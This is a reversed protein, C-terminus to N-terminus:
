ELEMAEEEEEEEMVADTPPAPPPSLQRVNRRAPRSSRRTKSAPSAKAKAPPPSPPPALAHRSRKVIRQAEQEEYGEQLSTDISEQHAEEAHVQALHQLCQRAATRQPRRTPPSTCGEQLSLHPPHLHAPAALAPAAGLASPAPTCRTAGSSAPLSDHLPPPSM